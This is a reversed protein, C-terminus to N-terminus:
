YADSCVALPVDVCIVYVLMYLYWAQQRVDRRRCGVVVVAVPAAVTVMVSLLCVQLCGKSSIM